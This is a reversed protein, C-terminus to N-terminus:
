SVTQLPQLIEHHQNFFRQQHPSGYRWRDSPWCPHQYHNTGQKNGGYVRVQWRSCIEIFNCNFSLTGNQVELPIRHYQLSCLGIYMCHIDEPYKIQFNCTYLVTQFCMKQNERHTADVKVLSLWMIMAIVDYLARHCRLDDAERNNVWGIRWGCIFSFM